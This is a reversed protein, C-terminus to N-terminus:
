FPLQSRRQPSTRPEGQARPAARCTLDKAPLRGTTLYTNTANIVCSNATYAYVGHGEGGKVTVLKSGKLARHMGVATSLPTQSDWENQIILSPVKNRVVTAPEAGKAWFACPKISSVFDGYLPYRKKDRVADRRYQQPDRPWAASNDGCVVSWLTAVSAQMDPEDAAAAATGPTAARAARALQVVQEAAEKASFFIHRQARIDDGTLKQGGIEIPKRDARAVLDWFSKRVKAPTSGLGYHSHRAATWRTWHDFAPEADEAWVQMMGRWVRKPDVASDLVIRDARRPFMQTYVAGLYTGYSLGFYSIKKEGLAARILDMDRVTNRTTFHRLRDGEKARCKDAVGKAWAVDGAFTEARYPRLFNMAEAEGLGCNLPSSRGVGRPDFGILDYRDEVSKPLSDRMFLPENLGPGGPGGPNFLLVGRRKGPVSTRIRSIAVDIKEGGPRRYDLPVKVTACQFSAPAAADCRQWVVQQRTFRDLPGAAAAPSAAVAPALPVLVSVALLPAIRRLQVPRGKPDASVASQGHWAM